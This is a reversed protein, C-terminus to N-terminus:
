LAGTNADKKAENAVPKIDVAIPLTREGLPAVSNVEFTVKEGPVPKRAADFESLHAFYRERNTVYIFGYRGMWREVTGEKREM